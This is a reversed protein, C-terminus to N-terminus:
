AGHLIELLKRLCVEASLKATDLTLHPAEPLDITTDRGAMQTMRGQDAAAHLGKPDRNRRASEPVDLFVELYGPLHARNWAHVEHFLSITAIVVTQGQDAPLKCLRAYIMALDLRSQRDFGAHSTDLVTKSVGHGSTVTDTRGSVDDYNIVYYPSGDELARTMAVGCMSVEGVMPQVLVQDREDRFVSIADEIARGLQPADQASVHLVSQFAGALSHESGDECCASSCIALSGSPFRNQISRLVQRPDAHWQRAEFFYSPPVPFGQDALCPLIEAKTGFSQRM